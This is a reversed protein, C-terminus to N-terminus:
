KKMKDEMWIFFLPTKKRGSDGEASWFDNIESQGLTHVLGLAVVSCMLRSHYGSAVLFRISLGFFSEPQISQITILNSKRHYLFHDRLLIFVSVNSGEYAKYATGKRIKTHNEGFIIM